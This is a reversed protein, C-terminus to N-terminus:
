NWHKHAFDGFFFGTACIYIFWVFAALPLGVVASVLLQAILGVIASILVFILFVKLYERTFVLTQLHQREYAKKWSGTVSYTIIAAPTLYATITAYIILVGLIAVVVAIEWTVLTTNTTDFLYNLTSIGSLPIGILSLAIGLTVTGQKVLPILPRYGPPSETCGNARKQIIRTLYGLYLPLGILVLALFGIVSGNLIHRVKPERQFAYEISDRV